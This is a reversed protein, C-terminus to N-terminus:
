LLMSVTEACPLVTQTKVRRRFEENLSEIAARCATGADSFPTVAKCKLRWERLFAKRRTAIEEPTEAYIMDRYYKTLEDHL